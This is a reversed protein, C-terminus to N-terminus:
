RADPVIVDTVGRPQPFRVRAEAVARDADSSLRYYRRSPRGEARALEADEWAGEALGAEELRHLIQYVSGPRVGTASAIDFGYRYGAALAQLVMGTPYTMRIRSM